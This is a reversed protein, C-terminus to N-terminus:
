GNRLRSLRVGEKGKGGFVSEGGRDSWWEEWRDLSTLM